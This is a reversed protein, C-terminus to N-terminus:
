VKFISVTMCTPLFLNQGIYSSCISFVSHLIRVKEFVQSYVPM